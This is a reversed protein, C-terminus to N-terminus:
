IARVPGRRFLWHGCACQYYHYHHLDLFPPDHPIKDGADSIKLADAVIDKAIAAAKVKADPWISAAETRSLLAVANIGHWVKLPDAKYAQLYANLSQELFSRSEREDRATIGAIFRDKFIRGIHGEAEGRDFAPLRPNALLSRLRSLAEESLGREMPM